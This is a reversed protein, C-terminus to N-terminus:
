STPVLPFDTEEGYGVSLIVASYLSSYTLQGSHTAVLFGRKDLVTKKTKLKTMSVRISPILSSEYYLFRKPEQQTDLWRLTVSLLAESRM